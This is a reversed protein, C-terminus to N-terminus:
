SPAKTTDARTTEAGAAPETDVHGLEPRPALPGLHFVLEAAEQGENLLRHRTDVPLFLAQGARMHHPEGDVVATLV